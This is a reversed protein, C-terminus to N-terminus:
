AQPSTSRLSNWYGFLKLAAFFSVESETPNVDAKEETQQLIQQVIWDRARFRDRVNFFAAEYWYIAEPFTSYMEAIEEDTQRALIRAQVHHKTEELNNSEHIQHAWFLGPNSRLSKDLAQQDDAREGKRHEIMFSRITSVVADDRFTCKGPNAGAPRDLM